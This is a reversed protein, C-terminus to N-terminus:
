AGLGFLKKVHAKDFLQIFGPKYVIKDTLLSLRRLWDGMEDQAAETTLVETIFHEAPEEKVKAPESPDRLFYHVREM